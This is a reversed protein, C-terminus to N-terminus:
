NGPCGLGITLGVSGGASAMTMWRCTSKEEMRLSALYVSWSKWPTASWLLRVRRRSLSITGSRATPVCSSEAASASPPLRSPASRDPNAKPTVCPMCSAPTPSPPSTCIWLRRAAGGQFMLFPTATTMPPRGTSHGMISAYSIAVDSQFPQFRLGFFLHSRCIGCFISWSRYRVIVTACIRCSAGRSLENTALLSPATLQPMYRCVM